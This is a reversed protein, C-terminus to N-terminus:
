PPPLSDLFAAGGGKMRAETKGVYAAMLTHQGASGIIAAVLWMFGATAGILLSEEIIAFLLTAVGLALMALSMGRCCLGWRRHRDCLGIALRTSQQSALAVVVYAITSIATLQEWKPHHWSYRQPKGMQAPANCKVCRLPLSAGAPIVILDGDRWCDAGRSDPLQVPPPTRSSPLTENM